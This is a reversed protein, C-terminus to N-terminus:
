RMARLETKAAAQLREKVGAPLRNWHCDRLAGELAYLMVLSVERPFAHKLRRYVALAGLKRLTAADEIGVERLQRISAPGINKLRQLDDTM